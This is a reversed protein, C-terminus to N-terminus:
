NAPILWVAAATYTTAASSCTPRAAQRLPIPISLRDPQALAYGNAIAVAELTEPAPVTIPGSYVPSATTPTTGNITYYITSSPTSDSITVVQVTSYSGGVPSFVPTAAPVTITYVGSQAPSSSYGTAVAIAELTQTTSVTIPASYLSSGTTPTTGNTTYYISNGATSDSITVTQISTFSGAVPSFVPTAAAPLNIIYTAYGIPSATDGTYYAKAELTENASVTVTLGSSGSLASATTPLTGDTTYYITAGATTDSITVTQASTYTESGPSFTPAAVTPTSAGILALAIINLNSNADACYGYYTGATTTSGDEAFITVGSGSPSAGNTTRATWTIPANGVGQVTGGPGYCMAWLLENAGATTFNATKAYNAYSASSGSASTDVPSTNINSYESVLLGVKVTAPNFNVAITYNGAAANPLVYAYMANYATNSVVPGPITVYSGAGIKYQVTTVTASTADFGIVLAHGAGVGTLTCTIQGTYNIYNNCSQVFTPASGGSASITYASTGVTSNNYGTAVAIAELTQTSSVSVASSYLSSSTTPATGNTTYYISASPTTTAIVVSQAAGYTGAYPSFFPTVATPLNITYIASALNSQVYGSATAIANITETASVTIAGSYTPSATTPTSGNTTYYITSSPTSDSIAVTQITTYTGGLPSFTPTAVPNGITYVATAAASLNFGPAIAVAEVTETTASVTIPATYLTSGTTPTTGDTTYYITPSTASDSITVTQTTAYNGPAPSFGPTAAPPLNITYAASAITSPSYAAAVTIAKLTQSSSVSVPGSYLNSGTTPVSGDTTYYYSASPVTSSIAVSQPSTYTGGAPSFVPASAAPPTGLLAVTVIMPTPVGGSNCQGFYTGAAGTVGDELTMNGGSGLTDQPLLNWAIPAAGASMYNNTFCVAWLLDSAQTTTFNGSVVSSVYGGANYGNGAADIPSAPVDTFEDAAIWMRSTGASATATITYTGGAINTLAYAYLTNGTGSNSTVLVPTGINSTVSTITDGATTQIASILITDGATSPSTFTCTVNNGYQQYGTCQQVYIAAPTPTTYSYTASTTASQNYGSKAGLATITMPAAVTIPATYLTSSTSNPTTGNTTYYISAGPSTDSITVVQISTYSGGAPSLTPVAVGIVYPASAVASTSYGPATAIAKLTQSASVSIGASYLTSGINPTSGDTTYYISAGATTDSISVTQPNLYNGAVPSFTPVAAAINYTAASVVSPAYGGGAAIAEVVSNTPVALPASYAPSSTTPTTGISGATLTYYITAGASSDTITVTQASAFNGSSPSFGPAAATITYTASGPVSDSYGGGTAIAEVVSTTTVAFAGSYHTSNSTPTTGTTGATVTYYISSGTSTDNITVNQNGAYTGAVPAFTPTAATGGITYIGTAVVSNNNGASAAIAQLTETSSVTIPASYLTSGITPTSGDTTYYITNGATADTITVTQASGFSGPVPSFTPTATIPGILYVGTSVASPSSYGEVVAIANITENAAVTISEVKGQSQPSMPQPIQPYMITTGSIPYTPTSGDTTYYFSAFPYTTTNFTVTKGSVYPGPPPTFTPPAVVSGPVEITVPTSPTVGYGAGAGNNGYQNVSYLTYTQTATPYITVSGTNIGPGGGNPTLRVPGIMDIYDYSDGSVSYNFTVPSGASVTQPSATFSNIM